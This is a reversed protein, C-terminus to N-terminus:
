NTDEGKGAWVTPEMFVPELTKDAGTAKYRYMTFTGDTNASQLVIYIFVASSGGAEEMLSQNERLGKSKWNTSTSPNNSATSLFHRRARLFFALTLFDQGNTHLGKMVLCYSEANNINSM